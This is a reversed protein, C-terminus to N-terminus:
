AMAAVIRGLFKPLISLGCPFARSWALELENKKGKRSHM